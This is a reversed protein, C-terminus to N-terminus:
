ESFGCELSSVASWDIGDQCPLNNILETGLVVLNNYGLSCPSKLKLSCLNSVKLLSFPSQGKGKNMTPHTPIMPAICGQYRISLSPSLSVSLTPLDGIWWKNREKEKKNKRKKNIFYVKSVINITV